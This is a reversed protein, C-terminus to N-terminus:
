ENNCAINRLANQLDKVTVGLKKSITYKDKGIGNQARNLIDAMQAYSLGILVLLSIRLERENLGRRQLKDALGFFRADCTACFAAYDNWRLEKKLNDSQLLAECVKTLESTRDQQLSTQIQQAHQIRRRLLFLYILAAIVGIGLLVFLVTLWKDIKREGNLSQEMLIIAQTLQIKEQELERQVDSRSSTLTLIESVNDTSDCHALIYYADDLYRPNDTESVVQSAYQTASDCQHLLCFAQARLMRAYTNDVRAIYLLTSDYEEAYLCAAGLTEAVKEKVEKRPCLRLASDVWLVADSKNGMVAQEWAMNNLAYAVKLTDGTQAFQKASLRYVDFALDHREAQRCMNAMNSYVRGMLLYDGSGSQTANVFCKMAQVAEGEQRFARGQEYWKQAKDHNDRCGICAACRALLM